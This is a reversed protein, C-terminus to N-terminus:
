KTAWNVVKNIDQLGGMAKRMMQESLSPEPAPAPTFGGIVNQPMETLNVGQTKYSGSLVDSLPANAGILASTASRVFNTLGVPNKSPTKFDVMKRSGDKYEVIVSDNTRMVRNFGPLNSFYNTAATVQEPTGAYLQGLMNGFQNMQEKSKVVEYEWQYTPRKQPEAYTGISEKKDYMLRAQVRLYELAQNSQEKTLTPSPTGTVPDIRLLIMNKNADRQKEDFTFTYQKGNLANLVNDTLISAANYPNTLYSQLMLTEADEFNKIINKNAEGFSDRMTIDLVQSISGAKTESGVKRVAELHEGLGDVFKTMADATNFRDFKANVRNRLSNVTLYNNPDPDLETMGTKENKITKGVSMKYDAPDIYVKSQTFNGLGEVGEMLWQELLASENASMRQMKDKYQSQYDKIASFLNDVGDLLNQRMAMYDKPKLKGSKLLRDQLVRAQQIDSSVDLTWQNLPKYDGQPATELVRGFQRSAEDIAEKKKERLAAEQSLMTSVSKGIDAWNVMNDVKREAYKYYTQM